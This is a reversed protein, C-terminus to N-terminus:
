LCLMGFLFICVVHLSRGSCIVFFFVACFCMLFVIWLYMPMGDVYWIHVYIHIVESMYVCVLYNHPPFGLSVNPDSVCSQFVICPRELLCVFCM